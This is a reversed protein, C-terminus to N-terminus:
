LYAVPLGSTFLLIIVVLISYLQWFTHVPRPSCFQPCKSYSHHGCIFVTSLCCIYVKNKSNLGFYRNSSPFLSFPVNIKEVSKLSKKSKGSGGYSQQQRAEYLDAQRLPRFLLTTRRKHMFHAHLRGTLNCAKGRYKISM